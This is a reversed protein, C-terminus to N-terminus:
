NNREYLNGYVKILDLIDDLIIKPEFKFEEQIRDISILPFKLDKPNNIIELKFPIYKNIVQLIEENKVNIGSAINYINYKSNLSIKVLLDVVDQVNIYDKESSLSTRLFLSKTKLIDRLIDTVFNSSNFDNGYVNSLRVVKVNKKNCNLCLSEGMIKSINYLDSPYLPNIKLPMEESVITEQSENGYVRTSSLYIFSDFSCNELIKALYSVHAEVTEFPKNRFDATLGICYIVNNLHTSFISDDNREPAFFEIQKKKLYEILNSGIFGSSGM